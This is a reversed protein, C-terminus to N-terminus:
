GEAEYSCIVCGENMYEGLVSHVGHKNYSYFLFGSCRNADLADYIIMMGKDPLAEKDSDSGSEEVSIVAGPMQQVIYQETEDATRVCIDQRLCFGLMIPSSIGAMYTNIAAEISMAGIPRGRFRENATVGQAAHIGGIRSIRQLADRKRKM